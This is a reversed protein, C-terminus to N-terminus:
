PINLHTDTKTGSTYFFLPNKIALKSIGLHKVRAEHSALSDRGFECVLVSTRDVGESEFETEDVRHCLIETNELAIVRRLMVVRMQQAQQLPIEVILNLKSRKLIRQSQHECVLSVQHKVQVLHNTTNHSLHTKM